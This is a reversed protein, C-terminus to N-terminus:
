LTLNFYTPTPVSEEKYNNSRLFEVSHINRKLLYTGSNINQMCVCRRSLHKQFNNETLYM